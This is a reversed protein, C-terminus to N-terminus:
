SATSTNFWVDPIGFEKMADAVTSKPVDPTRFVSGNVDIKKYPHSRNGTNRSPPSSSPGPAAVSAVSGGSEAKAKWADRESELKTITNKSHRSCNVMTTMFPDLRADPTEKCGQMTKTFQPDTTTGLAKAAEDAWQQITEVNVKVRQKSANLQAEFFVGAKEPGGLEQVLSNFRQLGANVEMNDTGDQINQIADKVGDIGPTTQSQAAAGESVAPTQQSPVSTAAAAAPANPNAASMRAHNEARANEAARPERASSRDVTSFNKYPGGETTEKTESGPPGLPIGNVHTIVAEEGADPDRVVSIEYINKSFVRRNKEHFHGGLSLGRMEGSRIKEMLAGAKETEAMEAEVCVRGLDDQFFRRITGVAEFDPNGSRMEHEEKLVWPFRDKTEEFVSVLNEVDADKLRYGTDADREPRPNFIGRVLTM